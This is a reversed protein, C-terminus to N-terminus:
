PRTSVHHKEVRLVRLAKLWDCQPLTLIFTVHNNTGSQSSWTTWFQQFNTWHTATRQGFLLRTTEPSFQYATELWYSPFLLEFWWTNSGLCVSSCIQVRLIDFRPDPPGCCCCVAHIAAGTLCSVSAVIWLPEGAGPLLLNSFSQKTQHSKMEAAVNLCYDLNPIFLM